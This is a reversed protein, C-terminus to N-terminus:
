ARAGPPAASPTPPQGGGAADRGAKALMNQREQEAKLGEEEERKQRAEVDATIEKEEEEPDIDIGLQGFGVAVIRRATRKSIYEQEEAVQAATVVQAVAAGATAIDPGSFDPMTVEFDEIEDDGVSLTNAARRRILSYKVIDTILWAFENRKRTLMKKTPESMTKATALNESNGNGYWMSPLGAGGLIHDRMDDAMRSNEYAGLQPSQAKWEIKENHVHVSAADPPKAYKKQLRAVETKGAGTATVDWIFANLLESREVANFQMRDLEEIWDAPRFLESIGRHANQVSNIKRFFCDGDMSGTADNWAIVKLTKKQAIRAGADTLVLEGAGGMEVNPIIRDIYVPDIWGIRTFGGPSETVPLCIEGWIQWERMRVPNLEDMRNAPDNWFDDIAEQITENKSTVKIGDGVTFDEILTIIRAGLLNTRYLHFAANMMAKHDWPSLDRASAGMKTWGADELALDAIDAAEALVVEGGDRSIRWAERMASVSARARTRLAHVQGSSTPPTLRKM